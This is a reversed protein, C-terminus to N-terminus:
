EHSNKRLISYLYRNKIIGKQILYKKLLGEQAFGNKELVRQSSTHSPDVYAEIREVELESFGTALAQKVAQTAYGKGWYKRTLVYGLEAKCSYVGKGKDLTLSGIVKDGLCIAKFWPHKEVVQSFFLIAQQKSCYSDWMLYSTVENDSAWEMFADIDQSSLPRLSIQEERPQLCSLPSSCCSSHRLHTHNFHNLTSSSM